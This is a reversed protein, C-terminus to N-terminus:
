PLAKLCRGLVDVAARVEAPSVDATMRGEVAVVVAEARDLLDRGEPTLMVPLTRGASPREAVAALGARRLGALVEGLSQRTVFTRRALEAASAGPVDAVTRLVAYQSMSLGLPRLADECSRRFAQQVQKVLYALRRDVLGQSM